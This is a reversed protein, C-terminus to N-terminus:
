LIENEIRIASLELLEMNSPNLCESEFAQTGHGWSLSACNIPYYILQAIFDVFIIIM